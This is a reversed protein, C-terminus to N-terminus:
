VWLHYTSGNTENFNMESIATQCPALTRSESAEMWTAGEVPGRRDALRAFPFPFSTSLPSPFRLRVRLFSRAGPM